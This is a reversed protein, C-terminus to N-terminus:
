RPAEEKRRRREEIIRKHVEYNEHWPEREFYSKTLDVVKGSLLLLAILNPIIVMGLFVDGLDWVAQLPLTAGVFHIAVFVYKYPLIAKTGFLYNACRDGYYSWAIATSIAFLLVALLVIFNGWQGPLGRQFGLATLPAGSEVANGHLSTYTLGGEDTAIGDLAQVVGTFPQTLEADIYLGDVPAEHWAVLPADPGTEAPQGDIFEIEAPPDIEAFGGDVTEARYSLDGGDLTIETPVADDWVGTTIIVLGTMTCVV